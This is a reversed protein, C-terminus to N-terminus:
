AGVGLFLLAILTVAVSVAGIGIRKVPSFEPKVTGVLIVALIALWVYSLFFMTVTIGSFIANNASTTAIAAQSSAFLSSGAGSPYFIAGYPTLSLGPWVDFPYYMTPLTLTAILNIAARIVMVFLAFGLALFIPKWTIETKLGKFFVYLMVTMLFWTFLFQLSFQQLFNLLFGTSNLEILTKYQGGFFLAGINVSVNSDAPYTFQFKVSTINSWMPSGSATWGDANPGVQITYNNWLGNATMNSLTGTLDYTYYNATNLSYLTVTASQPAANPSVQQLIMTLNTFGTSGSCDVNVNAYNPISSLASAANLTAEVNGNGTIALSSNGFLEPILGYGAEYVTYNFFAAYNNSVSSGSGTTWMTSNTFVSSYGLPPSSQEIQTKSIQSYEYGIQLGIFLVLIIIAGLYKPNATISKFAKQPAYIVKIIDDLGM